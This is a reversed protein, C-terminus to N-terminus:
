MKIEHNILGFICMKFSLFTNSPKIASWQVVSHFINWVSHMNRHFHIFSFFHFFLRFLFDDIRINTRRLHWTSILILRFRSNEYSNIDDIRNFIDYFSMLCYTLSSELDWRFEWKEFVCKKRRLIWLVVRQYFINKERSIFVTNISHSIKNQIFLFNWVTTM